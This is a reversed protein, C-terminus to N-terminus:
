ECFVTSSVIHRCVGVLAVRVLRGERRRRVCSDKTNSSMGSFSSSLLRDAPLGYMIPRPPGDSM